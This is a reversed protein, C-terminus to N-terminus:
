HNETRMQKEVLTYEEGVTIENGLMTDADSLYIVLCQLIVLHNFFYMELTYFLLIYFFLHVVIVAKHCYTDM